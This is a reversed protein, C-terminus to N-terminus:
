LMSKFFSMSASAPTWGTKFSTFDFGASLKAFTSSLKGVDKVDPVTIQLQSRQKKRPSIESNKQQVLDPKTTHSQLGSFTDQSEDMFNKLSQHGVDALPLTSMSEVLNSDTSANLTELSLYNQWLSAEATTSNLDSVGAHQSDMNDNVTPYNNFAMTEKFMESDNELGNPMFLSMFFDSHMSLITKESINDLSCSNAKPAIPRTNSHSELDKPISVPIGLRLRENIIEMRTLKYKKLSRRSVSNLNCNIIHYLRLEQYAADEYPKREVGTMSKWKEASDFSLQTMNRQGKLHKVSQWYEQRFRLFANLPKPNPDKLKKGM